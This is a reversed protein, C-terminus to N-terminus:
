RRRPEKCPKRARGCLLPSPRAARPDMFAYGGVFGAMKPMVELARVMLRHILEPEFHPSRDATYLTTIRAFV